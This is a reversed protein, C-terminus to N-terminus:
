AISQAYSPPRKNLVWLIVESVCPDESQLKRLRDCDSALHFVENQRTNQKNSSNSNRKSNTINGSKNMQSHEDEIGDAIM